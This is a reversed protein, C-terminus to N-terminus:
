RGGEGEWQAAGAGWGFAAQGWGLAQPCLWVWSCGWIRAGTESGLCRVSFWTRAGRGGWPM